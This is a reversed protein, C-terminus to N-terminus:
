YDLVLNIITILDIFFYYLLNTFYKPILLDLSNSNIM